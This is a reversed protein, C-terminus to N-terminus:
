DIQFDNILDRRFIQNKVQGQEVNDKDVAGQHKGILQYFLIKFLFYGIDVKHEVDTQKSQLGM